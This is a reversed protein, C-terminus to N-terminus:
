RWSWGAFTKAVTPQNAKWLVHLWSARDLKLDDALHRAQKADGRAGVPVSDPDIPWSRWGEYGDTMGGLVVALLVLEGPDRDAGDGGAVCLAAAHHAEHSAVSRSSPRTVGGAGGGEAAAAFPQRGLAARVEARILPKLREVTVQAIVEGAGAAV